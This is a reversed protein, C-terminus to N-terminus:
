VCIASHVNLCGEVVFFFDLRQEVVAGLHIEHSAFDRSPFGDRREFRRYSSGGYSPFFSQEWQGFCWVCDLLQEGIQRLVAPFVYVVGSNHFVPVAIVVDSRM